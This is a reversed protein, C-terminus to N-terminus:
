AEGDLAAKHARYQESLQRCTGCSEESVGAPVVRRLVEAWFEEDTWSRACPEM